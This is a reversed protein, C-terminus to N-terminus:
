TPAAVHRIRDEFMERMQHSVVRMRFCPTVSAATIKGEAAWDRWHARNSALTARLSLPASTMSASESTNTRRPLAREFRIVRSLERWDIPYFFRLERKIPM